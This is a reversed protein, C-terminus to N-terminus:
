GPSRPSLRLTFILTKRALCKALVSLQFYVVLMCLRGYYCIVCRVCSFRPCSLVFLFDREVSRSVRLLDRSLASGSCVCFCHASLLDEQPDEM